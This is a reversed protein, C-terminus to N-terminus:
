YKSALGFYGGDNAMIVDDRSATATLPSVSQGDKGKSYLDFSSNIPVLFRDKRASGPVVKGAPFPTYVYPNGWPDLLGGRGIAALSPPLTDSGFLDSAIARLDGIAKAVRAREVMDRNRPVALAALVGIIAVM